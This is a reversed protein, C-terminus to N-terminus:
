RAYELEETDNLEKLVNVIEGSKDFRLVYCPANESISEILDLTKEWWDTTVFPRILYSLLRNSIERKDTILIVKNEKAKELFLIARLPASNGSIDHVDGHSWTGYINFGAQSKRIIIRDDCLIEAKGRLMTAMTSKGAESHGVFLLGKGNFNVGCSHIFCGERDALIRAL